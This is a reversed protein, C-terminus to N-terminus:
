VRFLTGLHGQRQDSLDFIFRHRLTNLTLVANVIIEGVNQSSMIM